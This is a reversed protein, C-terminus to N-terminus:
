GSLTVKFLPQGYEVPQGDTAMVLSVIGRCGAEVDTLVQLAEIIGVVTDDEVFSGEEVLPAMGPQGARYFTGVLSATIEASGPASQADIDSVERMHSKAGTTSGSRHLRIYVEGETLELDRVDTGRLVDLLRPLEHALYHTVAADQGPPVDM